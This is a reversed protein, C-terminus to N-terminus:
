QPVKLNISLASTNSGLPITPAAPSAIVIKAPDIVVTVEKLYENLWEKLYIDLFKAKHENMKMNYIDLEAMHQDIVPQMTASIEEMYNNMITEKEIDTLNSPIEPVPPSPMVLDDPKKPAGKIFDNDEINAGDNLILDTIKEIANM